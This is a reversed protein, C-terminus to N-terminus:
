KKILFTNFFFWLKTHSDCIDGHFPREKCHQIYKFKQLTMVFIEGNKTTNVDQDHLINVYKLIIVFFMVGPFASICIIVVWVLNSYICTFNMKQEGHRYAVVKSIFHFLEFIM